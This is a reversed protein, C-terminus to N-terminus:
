KKRLLKKIINLLQVNESFNFTFIQSRHNLAIQCSAPQKTFSMNTIYCFPRPSHSLSESQDLRTIKQQMVLQCRQTGEMWECACVFLYNLLCFFCFCNVRRRKGKTIGTLKVLKRDVRSLCPCKRLENNFFDSM